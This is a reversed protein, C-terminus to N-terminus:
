ETMEISVTQPLSRKLFFDSIFNGDIFRKLLKVGDEDIEIDKVAYTPAGSFIHAKEVGVSVFENPFVDKLAIALLCTDTSYRNKKNAKELHEKTVELKM